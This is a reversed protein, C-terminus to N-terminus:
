MGRVWPRGHELFAWPMGAAVLLLAVLTWTFLARHKAGDDTRRKAVSRGVQVAAISALMTVGHEVAWFRLSRVKMAGGFDALAAAVTPSVSVYLLLGIVLQLHAAALLLVSWRADTQDFPRPNMCAQAARVVVVLALVVFAWRLWSHVFLLPALM